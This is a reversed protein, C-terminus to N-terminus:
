RRPRARRRAPRPLVAMRSARLACRRSALAAPPTRWGQRGDRMTVTTQDHGACLRAVHSNEGSDDFDNKAVREAQPEVLRAAGGAGEPRPFHARSVLAVRSGRDSKHDFNTVTEIAGVKGEFDTQIAKAREKKWFHKPQGALPGTRIEHGIQHQRIPTRCFFGLLSEGVEMSENQSLTKFAAAM